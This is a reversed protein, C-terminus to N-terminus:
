LERRSFTFAALVCIVCVYGVAYVTLRLLHTWVIVDGSALSDSFDFLQFNPLVIELTEALLRGATSEGRPVASQGLFRLHCIVLIMFGAATTFLQTRAFSAVLLTLASLLALKLWQAFGAAMVSTYEVARGHTFADPFSEMLATERIWLVAGLLLTVVACFSASVLAVGVFKGIVFESRRLPKALLTFVTRHELESFFLQATAAITLAAGFVAMAGFGLDAIFKLESSGFNFERLWQASVVVGVALLVIFHFLRQRIAERLTNCAILVM